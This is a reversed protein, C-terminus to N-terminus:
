SLIVLDFDLPKLKKLPENFTNGALIFTFLNFHLKGICITTIGKAEM